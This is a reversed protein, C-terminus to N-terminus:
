KNYAIYVKYKEAPELAAKSPKKSDCNQFKKFRNIMYKEFEGILERNDSEGIIEFHEYNTELFQSNCQEIPQSTKGLKFKALQPLIAEYKEGFDNFTIM